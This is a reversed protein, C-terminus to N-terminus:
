FLKQIQLQSYFNRMEEDKQLMPEVECEWFNRVELGQQEILHSRRQTNEYNFEATKWKLM